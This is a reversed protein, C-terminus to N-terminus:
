FRAGQPANNTLERYLLSTILSEAQAETFRAKEAETEQLWGGLLDVASVNYYYMSDVASCLGSVWDEFLQAKSIRHAKYQMDHRVKEEHFIELIAGCVASYNATDIEAMYDRNEEYYDAFNDMLYAKITAKVQKSNTRLAM